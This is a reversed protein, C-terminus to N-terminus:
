GGGVEGPGAWRGPGARGEAGGEEEVAGGRREGTGGGAGGAGAGGRAGGGRRNPGRFRRRRRPTATTAPRAPRHRATGHLPLLLPLAARPPGPRRPRARPARPAAAGLLAVARLLVLFLSVPKEAAALVGLGGGAELVAVGQHGDVVGVSGKAVQLHLLVVLCQRVALSGQLQVTLRHLSVEKQALTLHLHLIVVLSDGVVEGLFLPQIKPVVDRACQANGLLFAPVADLLLPDVLLVLQVGVQGLQDHCLLLPLTARPLPPVRLVKKLAVFGDCSQARHRQRGPPAPLAGCSTRCCCCSLSRYPGEM